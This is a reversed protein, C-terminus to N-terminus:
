PVLQPDLGAALRRLATLSKRVAAVGVRTVTYLKKRRGGRASTPEGVHAVVLGKTELRLLTKYVAGLSVERGAERALRAQVTVGYGDSGERLLALLVLQEFEGLSEPM